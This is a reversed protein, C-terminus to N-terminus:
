GHEVFRAIAERDDASLSLFAVGNGLGPQEYVVRARVRIPLQGAGPLRFRLSLEQDIPFTNVTELFLGGVSLDLCRAAGLGAVHVDQVFPIRRDRDKPGGDPPPPPGTWGAARRGYFTVLAECVVRCNRIEHETAGRRQLLRLYLEVEDAGLTRWPVDGTTRLFRSAESEFVPLFRDAIHCRRLYAVFDELHPRDDENPM